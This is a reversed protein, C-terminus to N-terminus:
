VHARGIERAVMFDSYSMLRISITLILNDFGKMDAADAEPAAARNWIGGVDSSREYCQVTHGEDLLQKVTTLGSPGAGIVCVNM